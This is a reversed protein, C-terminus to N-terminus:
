KGIFGHDDCCGSEFEGVIQGKNNIGYVETENPFSLVNVTQFSGNAARVYGSGDNGDEFFGVIVSTDNIGNAESRECDICDVAPPDFKTVQPIGFPSALLFSHDTFSGDEFEGVIQSNNNIGHAVIYGSKATGPLDIQLFADPNKCFNPCLFGHYHEDTAEFVGVVDCNDNIGEAFTDEAGPLDFQIFSRNPFRVFAHVGELGLSDDYEGVVM